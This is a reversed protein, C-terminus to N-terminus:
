KTVQNVRYEIKPFLKGPALWLVRAATGRFLTGAGENQIVRLLAQYTSVDKPVLGCQIRTKICDLPQTLLASCASAVVGSWFRVMSDPNGGPAQSLMEYVCFYSASFPGWVQEASSSFRIQPIKTYHPHATYWIGQGTGEGSGESGM